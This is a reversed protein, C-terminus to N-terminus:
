SRGGHRPSMITMMMVIRTTMIRGAMGWSSSIRAFRFPRRPTAMQRADNEVGDIGNGVWFYDLFLFIISDFTSSFVFFSFRKLSRGVQDPLLPPPPWRNLPAMFFFRSSGLSIIRYGVVVRCCVDTPVHVRFLQRDACLSSPIESLVRLGILIDVQTSSSLPPAPSRLLDYLERGLSSTCSTVCSLSALQSLCLALSGHTRWTLLTPVREHVCVVSLGVRKKVLGLFLSSSFYDCTFVFSSSSSLSTSLGAGPWFILFKLLLVLLLNKREKKEIKEINGWM